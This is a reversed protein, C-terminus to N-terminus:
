METESVGELDIPNFHDPRAPLFFKKLVQFCILNGKEFLALSSQKCLRRERFVVSSALICNFPLTSGASPCVRLVSRNIFLAKVSYCAAVKLRVACRLKDNSLCSNPLGRRCTEHLENTFENSSM